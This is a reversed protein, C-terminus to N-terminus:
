IDHSACLSIFTNKKEYLFTSNQSQLYMKYLILKELAYKLTGVQSKYNLELIM